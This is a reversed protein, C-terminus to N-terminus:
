SRRPRPVVQPRAYASPRRGAKRESGVDIPASSVVQITTVTAGVVAIVLPIVQEPEDASRTPMLDRVEGPLLKNLPDGGSTMLGTLSKGVFRASAADPVKIGLEDLVRKPNMEFKQRVGPDHVLQECFAALKRKDANVAVSGCRLKLKPLAARGRKPTRMISM